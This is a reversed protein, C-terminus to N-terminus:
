MRQRNGSIFHPWQPLSRHFADHSLIFTLFWCWTV